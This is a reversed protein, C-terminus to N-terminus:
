YAFYRRLDGNQSVQALWDVRDSETKGSLALIIRELTEYATRGTTDIQTVKSSGFRTVADHATVGLIESQLNGSIKAADYGRERYIPELSYPDRRLVIAMSVQPEAVAYPALHGVLITDANLRGALADQLLDTDVSIGDESTEAAGLEAAAEGLDLIRRQLRAALLGAATHKGVGPSGTIVLSM